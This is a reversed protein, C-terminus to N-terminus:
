KAVLRTYPVQQKFKQAKVRDIIKRIEQLSAGAVKIQSLKKNQDLYQELVQDALQYSFGLEEEDTQDSWLEASPPKDIFVAPLKLQKAVEKVQTKYLHQIPELDSAEDGFRTFYGLHKESKNETGCVLAKKKKAIDYLLIMRVRAKMNGLRIDDIKSTSLSSIKRIRALEEVPPNINHEWVQEEDIKNWKVIERADKTGQDCYPLLAPIVNEKGLANVALTLIVASDIGGSIGVVVKEKGANKLTQKIFDELQKTTQSTIQQM